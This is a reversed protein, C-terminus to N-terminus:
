VWRYFLVGPLPVLGCVLTGSPHSRYLLVLFTLQFAIFSKRCLNSFISAINNKPFSTMRLLGRLNRCFFSCQRLCYPLSPITQKQVALSCKVRSQMSPQNLLQIKLFFYLSSEKSSLVPLFCLINPKSRPSYDKKM